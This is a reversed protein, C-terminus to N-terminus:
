REQWLKLREEESPVPPAKYGHAKAIEPTIVPRSAAEHALREKREVLLWQQYLGAEARHGRRLRWSCIAYDRALEEESAGLPDLDAVMRDVFEVMDEMSEGPIVLSEATLGSTVANMRSAGKGADSTPGTSQLANKGNAAEQKRSTM